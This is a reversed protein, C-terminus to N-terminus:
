FFFFACSNIDIFCICRRPRQILSQIRILPLLINIYLYTSSFLVSLSPSRFLSLSSVFQRKVVIVIVRTKREDNDLICYHHCVSKHVTNIYTHIYRDFSHHSSLLLLLLLLSRKEGKEERERERFM